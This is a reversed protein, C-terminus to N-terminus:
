IWRALAAATDRRTITAAGGPLGLGRLATDYRIGSKRCATYLPLGGRASVIVSDLAKRQRATLCFGADSCSAATATRTSNKPM